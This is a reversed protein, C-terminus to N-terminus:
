IKQHSKVFREHANSLSKHVDCNTALMSAIWHVSWEDGAGLVDICDLVPENLHTHINSGTCYMSSTKDHLVVGADVMATVDNIDAPPFEEISGLLYDLCEIHEIHNDPIFGYATDASIISSTGIHPDLQKFINPNVDNLYVVHHWDAQPIHPVPLIRADPICRAVRTGTDPNCTILAEGIQFPIININIEPYYKKFITWHNAIGGLKIVKRDPYWITDEVMTGIINVTQM